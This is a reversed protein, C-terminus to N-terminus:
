CIFSFNQRLGQNCILVCTVWLWSIVLFDGPLTPAAASELLGVGIVGKSRKYGCPARSGESSWTCSACVGEGGAQRSDGYSVVLLFFRVLIKCLCDCLQCNLAISVDSYLSCICMTKWYSPRQALWWMVHTNASVPKPLSVDLCVWASWSM